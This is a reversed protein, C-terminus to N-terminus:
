SGGAEEKALFGSRTKYRALQEEYPRRSDFLSDDPEVPKEPEPLPPVPVAVSDM